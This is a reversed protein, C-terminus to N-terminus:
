EAMIKILGFIQERQKPDPIKYFLRLLETVERCHSNSSNMDPLGQLPCNSPYHGSEPTMQYFFYTIPTELASAVALLRIISIQNTGTEYKQLQQYSVGIHRALQSQSMAKLLRKTKIRAGIHTNDYSAAAGDMEAKTINIAKPATPQNAATM